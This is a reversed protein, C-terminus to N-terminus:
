FRPFQRDPGMEKAPAPAAAPVEVEPEEAVLDLEEVVPEEPKPKDAPKAM